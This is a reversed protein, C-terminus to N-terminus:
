DAIDSVRINTRGVVAITRGAGNIGAAFLPNLNYIVAYDGPSLAYNGASSTFQPRGTASLEAEFTQGSRILQSQKTFNHLTAVGVLVSALAAPIQPNSSNAWHEEGNVVYKHIGNHFSQQVQGATGTFEVITKGNS